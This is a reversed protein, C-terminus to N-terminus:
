KTSTFSDDDFDFDVPYTSTDSCISFQTPDMTTIANGNADELTATATYYGAPLVEARGEGVCPLRWTDLVVGSPNTITVQIQAAGHPACQAGSSDGDISWTLVIDGTDGDDICGGPGTDEVVCGTGAVCVAATLALGFWGDPGVLKM